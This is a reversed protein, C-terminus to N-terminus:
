DGIDVDVTHDEHEAVDVVEVDTDGLAAVIAPLLRPLGPLLALRVRMGDYAVGLSGALRGSAPLGVRVQSAAPGRDSLCLIGAHM